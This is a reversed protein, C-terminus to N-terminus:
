EKSLKLKTQLAAGEVDKWEAILEGNYTRFKIVAIGDIFAEMKKNREDQEKTAKAVALVTEPTRSAFMEKYNEAILYQDSWVKAVVSFPWKPALEFDNATILPPEFVGYANMELIRPYTHIFKEYEQKTVNKFVPKVNYYVNEETQLM